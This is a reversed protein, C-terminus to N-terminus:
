RLNLIENAEIHFHNIVQSLYSERVTLYLTLERGLLGTLLTSFGKEELELPGIEDLFVPSIHKESIENIILSAYELGRKSFSYDKYNYIEDWDDSLYQKRISFPIQDGTSLKRIMQGINQGNQFVKPLILGDGEHTREYLELLKTTKGSNISGTIITIM